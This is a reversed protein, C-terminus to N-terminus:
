AKKRLHRRTYRRGLGTLIEYGITGAHGAVEDVSVTPGILEVLSGREVTGHEIDTVDLAILDMSVRGIIPVSQGSVIGRGGPKIDSSGASRHFGDAYGVAVIAVRGDRNMTESAGYGVTEGAMVNRLQAVRAELTVVPRMPNEADGLPNGGYLGVGPRVLDFCYASGLLIGASNALSAPVGPFLTRVAGFRELQQKNLPHDATDACALHSMMLSLEFAALLEPRQAVAEAEAIRLGLRSMGTDVHIAAPLREGRAACFASWEEIEGISGLVPRLNAAAFTEGTGPFLGDLVYITAEPAVMRARLGENPLAVFFTRCGADLFTAVAEELGTGYGDGKVVASCEAAGAREAFLRWNAALAAHDISLIGGALAEAPGYHDPTDKGTM